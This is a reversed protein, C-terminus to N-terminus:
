GVLTLTELLASFLELVCAVHFFTFVSAMHAGGTCNHSGILWFLEGRNNRRPVTPVVVSVSAGNKVRVMVVMM